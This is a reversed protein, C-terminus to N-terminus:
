VYEKTYYEVKSAMTGYFYKGFGRHSPWQASTEFGLHWKGIMRVDYGLAGMEEGLTSEDLPLETNKNFPLFSWLGTTSPLRGTLLSGRAPTCYPAGYHRTLAIGEDALSAMHSSESSKLWALEDAGGVGDSNGSWDGFAFDDLLVLLVNPADPRRLHARDPIARTDNNQEQGFPCIGGCAEFVDMYGDQIDSDTLIQGYAISRVCEASARIELEEQLMTDTLPTSESPDNTLDYVATWDAVANSSRSGLLLSLTAGVRAFSLSAVTRHHHRHMMAVQWRPFQLM